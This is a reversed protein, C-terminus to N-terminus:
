HKASFIRLTRLYHVSLDQDISGRVFTSITEVAAPNSMKGLSDASRM